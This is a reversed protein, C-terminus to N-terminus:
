KVQLIFAYQDLELTKDSRREYCEVLKATNKCDETSKKAFEDSRSDVTEKNGAGTTTVGNLGLLM